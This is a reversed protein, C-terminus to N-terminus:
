NLHSRPIVTGRVKVGAFRVPRDTATAGKFRKLIRAWDSWQTGSLISAIGTHQNAITITEHDFRIGVRMLANRYPSNETDFLSDALNIMEAISCEYVKGTDTTKIVHQLIRNLCLVEDPTEQTAVQETWDQEDIWKAAFEPTVLNDSVLAYCGALLAGVQDGQRQSGIKAAAALGFIIANERVLPIMKIMRAHLAGIWDPKMLEITKSKIVAFHEASGPGEPRALGLVSIRTTDSHQKISVGISSFAFCSRICYVKVAGTTSGKVIVSGNESSSQRMLALVNQLRVQSRESEGEAEDFLVPRADYGLAQRIGAETTDSQVFLGVKGLSPRMFNDMIWSKGTGAAGTLWIHPRWALAGCIPAIACWGAMLRSSLKKEWSFMQCLEALKVSESVPLPNEYNIQIPVSAPYIFGGPHAMGLPRREGEVVLGDGLHIVPQGKEHWAGRGRIRSHDFVGARSCRMMLESAASTWAVAGSETGYAKGWFSIPALQLLQLKAHQNAALAIVTQTQKSMYYFMGDGYGLPEFPADSDEKSALELAQSPPPPAWIPAQAVLELFAEKTGGSALWDSADGKPPLNPLQLGHIEKAVGILSLGVADMHDLGVQDNDPTLYVIRDKFFPAYEPKWKGAGMANTTAILGLATLNDADKEGEVIFVPAAPDAAILAPLRYLVLRADKLNWIWNGHADPRRQKFTKGGGEKKYRLSQYQLKGNEDVYDYSRDLVAKEAKKKEPKETRYPIATRAAMEKLGGDGCGAQCKWGGSTVNFVFSRNRDEHFPCRADRWDGRTAEAKIGCQAFYSEIEQPTLM